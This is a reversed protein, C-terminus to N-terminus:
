GSARIRLRGRRRRSKRGAARAPRPGTACRGRPAAVSLGWASALGAVACINMTLGNCPPMRRSTRWDDGSRPVCRAAAAIAPVGIDFRGTGPTLVELPGQPQARVARAAAWFNRESTKRLRRGSSAASSAVVGRIARHRTQGRWRWRFAAAAPAARLRIRVKTGLGGARLRAPGTGSIRSAPAQSSTNRSTGGCAATSPALRRACASEFATCKLGSILATSRRM